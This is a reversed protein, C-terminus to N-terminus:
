IRIDQPRLATALLTSCLLLIDSSFFEISDAIETLNNKQKNNKKRPLLTSVRKEVINHACSSINTYLHQATRSFYTMAKTM